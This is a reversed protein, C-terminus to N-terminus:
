SAEKALRGKWATSSAAPDMAERLGDAMLFFGGATVALAIGPLLSLMPYSQLYTNAEFIMRGWTPTDAGAGIGLFSLWAETLINGAVGATSLVLAPSIAHPLLHRLAIRGGGAGLARAAEAFEREKLSLVEGRVLRAISGWGILGLVMFVLVISRRPFVVMAGMAMLPVPLSLLVDTLRMLLTDIRGGAYGAALGVMLGCLLAVAEASIGVFVSVRAGHLLRSLVDRGRDDTGLPHETALPSPPRSVERDHMEPDPLGLLRMLTSRPPDGWTIGAIALLTAATVILLGATLAPSRRLARRAM